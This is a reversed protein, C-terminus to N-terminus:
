DLNVTRQRPQPEPEVPPPVEAPTAVLTELCLDAVFGPPIIGMSAMTTALQQQMNYIRHDLIRAAVSPPLGGGRAIAPGAM